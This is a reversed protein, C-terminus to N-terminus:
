SLNLLSDNPFAGTTRLSVYNDEFRDLCYCLMSISLFSSTCVSTSRQAVMFAPNLVFSDIGSVTLNGLRGYNFFTGLTQSPKGSIKQLWAPDILGKRLICCIGDLPAPHCGMLLEVCPLHM